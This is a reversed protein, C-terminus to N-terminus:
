LNVAFADEHYKSLTIRSVIIGMTTYSKSQEFKEKTVAFLLVFFTFFNCSVQHYCLMVTCSSHLLLFILGHGANGDIACFSLLKLLHAFNPFNNPFFSFSEDSPALFFIFIFIAQTPFEQVRRPSKWM